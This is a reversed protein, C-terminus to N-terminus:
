FGTRRQPAHRELRGYLALWPDRCSEIERLIAEAEAHPLGPIQVGRAQARKVRLAEEAPLPRALKL